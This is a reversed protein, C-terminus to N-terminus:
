LQGPCPVLCTLACHVTIACLCAHWSFVRALVLVHVYCSRLPSLICSPVYLTPPQCSLVVVLLMLIRAAMKVPEGSGDEKFNGTPLLCEVHSGYWAAPAAPSKTHGIAPWGRITNNSLVAPCPAASRPLVYKSENDRNARGWKLVKMNPHRTPVFRTAEVAGASTLSRPVM